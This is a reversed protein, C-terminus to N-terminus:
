FILSLKLNNALFILGTTCSISSEGKFIDKSDISLYVVQNLNDNATVIGSGISHLFNPGFYSSSNIIKFNKFNYKNIQKLDLIKKTLIKKLDLGIGIAFALDKDSLYSWDKSYNLNYAAALQSAELGSSRISYFANENSFLNFLKEDIQRSLYMSKYVNLIKKKSFGHIDHM